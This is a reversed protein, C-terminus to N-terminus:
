NINRSRPLLCVCSSVIKEGAIFGGMVSGDLQNYTQFEIRRTENPLINLVTNSFYNEITIIKTYSTHENQSGM